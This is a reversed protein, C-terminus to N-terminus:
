LYKLIVEPPRCIIYKKGDFFIPRQLCVPYKHLFSIMANKNELDITNSKFVKENTRVLEKLPNELNNIIKNLTSISLGEKLYLIETFPIAKDLIIKQCARSKSCKANHYLIKKKKNIEYEKKLILNKNLNAIFIIVVFLAPLM